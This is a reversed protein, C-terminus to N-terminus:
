RTRMWESGIREFGEGVELSLALSWDAVLATLVGFPAVRATARDLEVAPKDLAEWQDVDWRYISVPPSFRTLVALTTVLCSKEPIPLDWPRVLWQWVPDHGESLSRAMDPTDVTPTPEVPIVQVWHAQLRRMPTGLLLAEVWDSEVGGTTFTGLGAVEVMAAEHSSRRALNEACARLIRDVEYVNYRLAGACVLECGALATVGETYGYSPTTGQQVFIVRIEPSM